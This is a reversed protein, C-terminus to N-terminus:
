SVNTQFHSLKRELVDKGLIYEIGTIGETRCGIVISVVVCSVLFLVCHWCCYVIVVVVCTPMLKFKPFIQIVPYRHTLRPRDQPVLKTWGQGVDMEAVVGRRTRIQFWTIVKVVITM